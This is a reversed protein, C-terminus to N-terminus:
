ILLFCIVDVVFAAEFVVTSCLALLYYLYFQLCARLYMKFYQVSRLELSSIYRAKLLFQIVVVVSLMYQFKCGSILSVVEFCVM